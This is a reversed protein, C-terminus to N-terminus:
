LVAIDRHDCLVAIPDVQGGARQGDDVILDIRCRAGDIILRGKAVFVFHQPRSPEDVNPDFDVDAAINDGYGDCGDLLSRVTGVCEHDTLIAHHLLPRDLDANEVFGRCDNIVTKLRVLQYDGVSLVADLGAAPDAHAGTGFFRRASGRDM